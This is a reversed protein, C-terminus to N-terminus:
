GGTNPPATGYVQGPRGASLNYADALGMDKWSGNEWKMIPEPGGKSVIWPAGDSDGAVEYALQSGYNKEWSSGYFKEVFGYNSAECTRRYMSGDGGWAVRGM